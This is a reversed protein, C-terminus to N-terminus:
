FKMVELVGKAIKKEDPLYYDELKGLPIITDFGTIRKVPANLNLLARENILASIEAGFGNTRPAEHVIVVRGTKQVSNIITDIDVPSLTRLNIIELDVKGKLLESSEMCERVMAGWSIVTVDKGEKMIKAKGLPITYEKEPVEEKIARYVRKPELFIVPDPDRIASILLGKADYPTAPIVVKLGPIHVYIAEMSESHHELAKIGGSFPARVVIHCKYRGRSRNRIRSVHSILQDFAPYMFGSFQIEAIPKLGYVALGISTGVIGSESLPTDIIRNEGFKKYLGDTVRFVGGDVGVDEGLVIVDKDKKMEQNLALNLAEVMNMKTM